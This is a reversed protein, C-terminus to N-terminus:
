LSTSLSRGGAKKAEAVNTYVFLPDWQHFKKRAAIIEDKRKSIDDAYKAYRSEWDKRNEQLLKCVDVITAEMEEFIDKKM